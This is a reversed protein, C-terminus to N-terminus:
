KQNKQSKKRKKIKSEEKVEDARTRRKMLARTAKFIDHNLCFDYTNFGTIM